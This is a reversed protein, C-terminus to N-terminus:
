PRLCFPSFQKNQNIYVFLCVPVTNAQNLACDRILAGGGGIKRPFQPVLLHWLDDGLTLDEGGGGGGLPLLLWFVYWEEQRTQLGASFDAM